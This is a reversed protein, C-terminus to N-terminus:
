KEEYHGLCSKVVIMDNIIEYVLRNKNDIRRSYSNTRYKLVEPKGLGKLPGEIDISLLLENIRKLIKKDKQQWYLYDAWGEGAFGVKM